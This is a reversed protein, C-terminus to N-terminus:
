GSRAVALTILGLPNGAMAAVTVACGEAVCVKGNRCSRM